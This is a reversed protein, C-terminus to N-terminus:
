WEIEELEEWEADDGLMDPEGLYELYVYDDDAAWDYAREQQRYQFYQLGLDFTSKLLM